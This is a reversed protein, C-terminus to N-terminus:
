LVQKRRKRVVDQLFGDVEARNVHRIEQEM